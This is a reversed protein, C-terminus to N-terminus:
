FAIASGIHLLLMNMEAPTAEITFDIPDENTAGTIRVGGMTGRGHTYRAAVTTSFEITQSRKKGVVDFLKRFEIGMSGGGSAMQLAGLSQDVDDNSDFFAGAGLGVHETVRFRTGIRAGWSARPDGVSARANAEVLWWDESLGIGTSFAWGRLSAGFRPSPSSVTTSASDGYLLAVSQTRDLDRFLVLRPTELTAAGHVLRSLRGRLGFKSSLGFNNITTDDDFLYSSRPRDDLAQQSVFVRQEARLGDYFPLLSVGFQFDDNVNWGLGLAVHYRQSARRYRVSAASLGREDIVDAQADFNAATPAYVGLGFTLNPSLAFSTAFMTPVSVVEASRLPSVATETSVGDFVLGRDARLWRIGYVEANAEVEPHRVQGLIAPNYWFSGVDRGGALVAGGMVAAENSVPLRGGSGAEAVGCLSWSLAGAVLAVAMQAPRM